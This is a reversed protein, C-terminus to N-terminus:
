RTDIFNKASQIFIEHAEDESHCVWNDDPIENLPLKIVNIDEGTIYTIFGNPSFTGPPDRLTRPSSGIKYGKYIIEKKSM